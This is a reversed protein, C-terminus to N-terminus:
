KYQMIVYKDHNSKMCHFLTMKFDFQATHEDNHKSPFPFSFRQRKTIKVNNIINQLNLHIYFTLTRETHPLPHEPNFTTSISNHWDSSNVHSVCVSVDRSEEWHMKNQWPIVALYRNMRPRIPCVPCWADSCWIHPASHPLPIVTLIYPSPMNCQFNIAKWLNHTNAASIFFAM